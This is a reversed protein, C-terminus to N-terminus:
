GNHTMDGSPKSEETATSDVGKDDPNSPDVVKVKSGDKLGTQGAIVISDGEKLVAVPELNDADELGVELLIREVKSEDGVRFIFRQEGDYVIAKKPLLLADTKASTVIDADVYMGPLLPGVDRFGVTVKIMGSKSEVVPAIRMVYGEFTKGPFATSEVRVEQNLHIRSLEKEPVYLRAVISNFDIINFLEQGANIQDGVKVMRHTITGAIPARIETYGLEREADELNLELQRLRFKSEDFVQDSVLQQQYLSQQRLFEERAEDVQNKAKNVQILQIDNDLQLLLDDAKVVDGEEVYLEKVRNATRAPVKVESEAELGSSSELVTEIAGRKLNVVEVPIASDKEEKGNQEDKGGFGMKGCATMGLSLGLIILCHWATHLVGCSNSGASLSANCSESYLNKLYNGSQMFDTGFM